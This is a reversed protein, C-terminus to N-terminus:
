ASCLMIFSAPGVSVTHVYVVKIVVQISQIMNHINIYLSLGAACAAVFSM